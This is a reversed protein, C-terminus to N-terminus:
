LHKELPTTANGQFYVMDKTWNVWVQVLAIPRLAYPNCASWSVHTGFVVWDGTTLQKSSWTARPVTFPAGGERTSLQPPTAEVLYLHRYGTAESSILFHLPLSLSPSFELIDTM